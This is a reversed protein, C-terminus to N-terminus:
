ARNTMLELSLPSWHLELGMVRSALQTPFTIEGAEVASFTIKESVLYTFVSTVCLHLPPQPLVSLSSFPLVNTDRECVHHVKYHGRKCTSWVRAPISERRCVCCPQTVCM